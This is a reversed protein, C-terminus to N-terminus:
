AVQFAAEASPVAAQHFPFQSGSRWARAHRGLVRHSSRRRVPVRPPRSYEVPRRRQSAAGARRRELRRRQREGRDVSGRGAAEDLDAGTRCGAEALHRAQDRERRAAAPHPAASRRRANGSRDRLPGLSSRQLADARDRSVEAPVRAGGAAFNTACGFSRVHPAASREPPQDNSRRRRSQHARAVLDRAAHQLSFATAARSAADAAASRGAANRAASGQRRAGAVRPQLAARLQTGAGDHLDDAHFRSERPVPAAPVVDLGRDAGQRWLGVVPAAHRDHVCLSHRFLQRRRLRPRGARSDLACWRAPLSTRAPLDGAVAVRPHVLLGPQPPAAQGGRHGDPIAPQHSSLRYAQLTSFFGLVTAAAFM